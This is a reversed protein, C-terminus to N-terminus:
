GGQGSNGGSSNDGGSGSNSNGGHDDTADHNAGDDSSSTTGGHDDNVDHTASNDVGNDDGVQAPDAPEIERVSSTGDPNVTLHLKVSAGTVIDGKIEVNPAFTYTQGGITISTDTIADVTGVAENGKDDFAPAQTASGPMPTSSADDPASTGAPVVDAASPTEVRQATVSGDNSMSAEVKVTDGVAFPGDRLVSSDVQVTQGSIVWQNGTMSEIVGTFSVDALGKGGGVNTAPNAAPACASLLIGVLVIAARLFKIAKM